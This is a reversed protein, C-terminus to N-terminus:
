ALKGPGQTTGLVQPALQRYMMRALGIGGAKAMEVSMKEDLMTQFMESSLSGGLLGGKPVTDRLSKWLMSLFVSEFDAVVRRLEADKPGASPADFRGVAPLPKGAGTPAQLNVLPMESLKAHAAAVLPAVAPVM